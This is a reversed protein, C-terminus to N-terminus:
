VEIVKIAPHSPLISNLKYLNWRQRLTLNKPFDTTYILGILNLGYETDPYIRSCWYQNPTFGGSTNTSFHYLIGADLKKNTDSRHITNGSWSFLLSIGGNEVTSTSLPGRFFNACNCHPDNALISRSEAIQLAVEFSTEHSLFVSM